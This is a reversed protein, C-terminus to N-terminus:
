VFIYYIGLNTVQSVHVMLENIVVMYEYIILSKVYFTYHFHAQPSMWNSTHVHAPARLKHKHTIFQQADNKCSFDYFIVQSSLIVM